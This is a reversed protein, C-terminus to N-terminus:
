CLPKVSCWFLYERLNQALFYRRDATCLQPGHHGYQRKRNAYQCSYVTTIAVSTDPVKQHCRRTWGQHKHLYHQLYCESPLEVKGDNHGTANPYNSGVFPALM